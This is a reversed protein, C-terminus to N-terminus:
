QERDDGLDQPQTNNTTTVVGAKEESGAWKM